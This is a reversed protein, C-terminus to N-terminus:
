PRTKRLVSYALSGMWTALAVAAAAIPWEGSLASYLAIGAFALTIVSFLAALPV